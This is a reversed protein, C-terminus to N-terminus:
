GLGGFLDGLKIEAMVNGAPTSNNSNPIALILYYNILIFESTHLPLLNLSQQRISAV